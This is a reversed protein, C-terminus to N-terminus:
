PVKSFIKSLNDWKRKKVLGMSHTSDNGNWLYLSQPVFWTSLTDLNICGTQIFSVSFSPIVLLWIEKGATGCEGSNWAHNGENRKRAFWGQIVSEKSFNILETSGGCPSFPGPCVCVSCITSYNWLDWAWVNVKPWSIRNSEVTKQSQRYLHDPPPIGLHSWPWVFTFYVYHLM